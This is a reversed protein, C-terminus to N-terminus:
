SEPKGDQEAIVLGFTSLFAVFSIVTMVTLPLLMNVDMLATCVPGVLIACFRGVTSGMSTGTARVATPYMAASAPYLIDFSANYFFKAATVAVLFMVPSTAYAGYYVAGGLAVTALGISSRLMPRYKVGAYILAAAPFISLIPWSTTISIGRAVDFVSGSAAMDMVSQLMQPISFILGYFVANNALWLCWMRLTQARLDRSLIAGMNKQLITRFKKALNWMSPEPSRRPRLKPPWLRERKKIAKPISMEQLDKEGNPLIEGVRRGNLNCAWRFWRGLAKTRGKLALFRPSEPVLLSLLCTFGAPVTGLMFILKVADMDGAFTWIRGAGVAAFYEGLNFGAFVLCSMAGAISLPLTETLLSAATPLSAGTGVGVLFRVACLMWFQEITVSLLGFGCIMATSLTLTRSRGMMDALPGAFFGSAMMGAYVSSTLLGRKWSMLDFQEAVSTSVLSMMTIEAGDVIYVCMVVFWIFIQYWGFGMKGIATELKENAVRRRHEEADSESSHGINGAPASSGTATDESRLLSATWSRHTVADNPPQSAGGHWTGHWQYLPAASPNQFRPLRKIFRQLGAAHLAQWSVIVAFLLQRSVM